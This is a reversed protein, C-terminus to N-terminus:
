KKKLVGHGVFRVRCARWVLAPLLIDREALLEGVRHRLRADQLFYVILEGGIAPLLSTVSATRLQEDCPGMLSHAQQARARDAAANRKIVSETHVASIRRITHYPSTGYANSGDDTPSGAQLWDARTWWMDAEEVAAASGSTSSSASKGDGVLTADTSSFSKPEGTTSVATSSRADAVPMASSEVDWTSAASDWSALVESSSTASSCSSDSASAPQATMLSPPAVSQPLHVTWDSLKLSARDSQRLPKAKLSLQLSSGRASVTFKSACCVYYGDLAASLWEYVETAIEISPWAACDPSGITHAGTTEVVQRFSAPGRSLDALKSDTAGGSASAGSASTTEDHDETSKALEEMM